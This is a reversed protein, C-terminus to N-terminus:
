FTFEVQGIVKTRDHLSGLASTNGDFFAVKGLVTTNDSLKKSAVIDLEEGYDGGRDEARFMHFAVKSKIECPLIKAVFIYFDELGSPPTVLFADAFGNFKHLTALPTQFSATDSDSGLVEYGAGITGCGKKVLAAEALYYDATYDTPNDGGDSQTAWSLAHKLSCEDCLENSGALRLGFTDSSNFASNDLDLSIAFASAKGVVPLKDRSLYFVHSDSELDRDADPGFIRNIDKIHSYIFTWDEEPAAIFTIADFTQENQRWGVNGVFRHDDLTIRQRGVIFSAWERVYKMYAQNLESDQIDAVTAKSGNANTGAANYRDDDVTRIDEMDVYFSFGNYAKSGYGLRLRETYAQGGDLEDQEVIEARIRLNVDVKGGFLAEELTQPAVDAAPEGAWVGVSGCGLILLVMVLKRM